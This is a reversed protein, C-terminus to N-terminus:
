VKGVWVITNSDATCAAAAANIGTVSTISGNIFISEWGAASALLQVCADNPVGNYTVNFSSGSGDVTVSGGFVNTVTNASSDVALTDPFAKSTILSQTMTGAPPFSISSLSYIRKVNNRIKVVEVDIQNIQADYFAFAIMAGVATIVVAAVGLFGIAELLTAGSQLGSRLRQSKM